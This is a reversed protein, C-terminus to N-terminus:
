AGPEAVANEFKAIATVWGQRRTDDALLEAIRLAHGDRASINWATGSKTPKVVTGPVLAALQQLYEKSAEPRNLNRAQGAHYDMWVEGSNVITGLNWSGANESHWRLTLTKSGYDPQVNYAKLDAVFRALKQSAGPSNRELDQFFREETITGGIPLPEPQTIEIRPDKLTVVGRDINTTRALVRPQAIFGITPVKFLALEVISLTFHLGAHQQLFETMTELGERIGDGVILLLVRGRRLNRSVADHFAVEDMEGATSVIEFLSRVPTSTSADLPRARRIASELSEYNWTTLESAYDIIQAVVQRRAEPNRWLKCEVLALDGTPTVFLNDVFGARM